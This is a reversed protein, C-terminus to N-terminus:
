VVEQGADILATDLAINVTIQKPSGHPRIVLGIAVHTENLWVITVDGDRPSRVEGPFPVGNIQTERSMERLTRGFYTEHAAISVPTSNLSRNGVRGIAQVRVRRSVKDVVRIHEIVPYDGGTVELMRGDSWYMGEYNTYWMPVSLRQDHLARLVALDVEVGADDVPLDASNIGLGLLAGTEVRCPSDAVTVARNCLRGALVGAENGWLAPVLQVGNAVLGKQLDGVFKLYGSWDTEDPLQQPGAVTAIFWVWSGLKSIISMRLAQLAEILARGAQIDDIETCALVGEVNVMELAVGIAATWANADPEDGPPDLMLAYGQWNQGGNLQAARVNELLVRGAGELAVDVDTQAGLIVFPNKDELPAAAAGVFLLTREVEEIRGARLNLQNIDVGPWTM